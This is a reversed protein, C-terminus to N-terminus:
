AATADDVLELRRDQAMRHALHQGKNYSYAHYITGVPEAEDDGVYVVWVPIEDGEANTDPQPGDFFIGRWPGPAATEQFQEHMIEQLTTM